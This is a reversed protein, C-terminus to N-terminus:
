KGYTREALTSGQKTIKLEFLLNYQTDPIQQMSPTAGFAKVITLITNSHGVILVKKGHYNELITKVLDTNKTPDYTIIEKNILQSLPNGTQITRKYNTSFIADLKEKQLVDRLDFSRQLGDGSLSPDTNSPNSLDKEAHRVVFVTTTKQAIAAIHAFLILSLAIFLPKM